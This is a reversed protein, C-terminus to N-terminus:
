FPNLVAVGTHKIDAANRTVFTLSHTLATAAMLGDVIALPRIAAIRGFQDAIARTVPLIRTAYDAEIRQIWQELAMAQTPDRPRIKEIGKRIEGLALVSIFHEDKLVSKAWAIVCVNARTGKRLESLVNTDLLYGNM